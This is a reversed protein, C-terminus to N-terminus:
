EPRPTIILNWSAISGTTSGGGALNDRVFLRWTGNPNSNNFASLTTAYPAAPATGGFTDTAGALDTPKYTGTVLPTAALSATAADDFTLTVASASPIATTGGVDSLLLVTQGAPGVLLVDVDSPRPHYFNNLRVSIKSVVGQLGSVSIQSPYPQANGSVPITITGGNRTKSVVLYSLMGGPATTNNVLDLRRDYLPFTGARAPKWFADITKLATLQPAYAQRAYEYPKGDEAILKLYEGNLMPVHSDLSASLVRLLVNQGADNNPISGALLHALGNTQFGNMYSLGNILFYRARYGTTSSLAKGPGYNGTAVADHLDPDVESFLLTVESDHTAVGPYARNNAQLKTLAGYLGMQVQVSPHSGSHYLYTGPAVNSWLYVASGGPDAEHTLSRARGDPNRQPDGLAAGLGPIVISAPEPLTNELVIMLDQNGPPLAIKPGPVSVIGDDVGPGSDQAFGWMVVPAGDGMLNTVTAARFYNTVTAGWSAAAMALCAGLTLFRIATKM